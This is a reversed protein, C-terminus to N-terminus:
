EQEPETEQRLYKGDFSYANSYTYRGGEPYYGYLSAIIEQKEFNINNVGETSPLQKATRTKTDVIYTWINRADPCGEVIIKSGDAALLYAVDAAGILHMPVEVANAGKGEMQDWPAYVTPNTTLVKTATGAQKDALWVSYIGALDNEGPKQDMIVYLDFQANSDKIEATAPIQQIDVTVPQYPDMGPAEDAATPEGEQYVAVNSSDNDAANNTHKTNSPSNCGTMFLAAAAIILLAKKM